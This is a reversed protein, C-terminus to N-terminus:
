DDAYDDDFADYDDDDEYDSGGRSTIALILSIVALVAAAVAAILLQLDDGRKLFAFVSSGLYCLMPLLFAFVSNSKQMILYFLAGLFMCGGLVVYVMGPSIGSDASASLGETFGTYMCYGFGALSLLGLIIRMARFRPKDQYSDDEYDEYVDAKAAPKKAAARIAKTDDKQQRKKRSESTSVTGTALMDEYSQRAAKGHKTRVKESPINSYCKEEDSSSGNSVTRKKVPKKAPAASAAGEPRRKPKSSNQPDPTGTRESKRSAGPDKAATKKVPASTRVKESKTSPEAKKGSAANASAAAKKAAMKKERQKDLNWQKRCDRCIAYENFIPEGNENTGIQKNKLELDKGCIPCKM